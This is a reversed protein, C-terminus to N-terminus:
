RNPIWKFVVNGIKIEGAKRVAKMDVRKLDESRQTFGFVFFIPCRRKTFCLIDDEGIMQGAERRSGYYEKHAHAWPSGCFSCNRKAIQVERHKSKPLMVFGSAWNDGVEYGLYGESDESPCLTDHKHLDPCGCFWCIDECASCPGSDGASSPEKALCSHCWHNHNRAPLSKVPVQNKTADFSTYTLLQRHEHNACTYRSWTLVRCTKWYKSM